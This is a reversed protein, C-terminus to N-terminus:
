KPRTLNFRDTTRAYGEGGLRAILDLKGPDPKGDADTNVGTGYDGIAGAIM